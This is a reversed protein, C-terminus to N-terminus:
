IFTDFAGKDFTNNKDKQFTKGLEIIENLEKDDIEENLESAVKKLDEIDIQGEKNLDFMEFAQDMLKKNSNTQGIKAQMVQIFEAQNLRGSKTKGFQQIIQDREEETIESYGIAKMAVKLGNSGVTDSGEQCLLDFAAKIEKEQSENLQIDMLASM